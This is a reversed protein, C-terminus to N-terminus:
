DTHSGRFVGARGRADRLAECGSGFRLSNRLSHKWLLASVTNIADQRALKDGGGIAM